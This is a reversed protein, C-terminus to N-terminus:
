NAIQLFTIIQFLLVTIIVCEAIYKQIFSFTKRVFVNKIEACLFDDVIWSQKLRTFNLSSLFATLPVVLGEGIFSIIRYFVSFSETTIYFAPVIIILLCFIIIKERKVTSVNTLASIPVEVYSVASTLAAIILAFYFLTGLLDGYFGGKDFVNQMSDFILQPGNGIFSKNKSASMVVVSMALAFLTDAIVVSVSSKVTNQNDPMMSGYTIMSGVAISLSFFMQDSATAFIKLCHKLSYNDNKFVEKIIDDFNKGFILIVAWTVVALMLLPVAISNFREIGNGVKMRSLLYILVIFVITYFGNFNLLLNIKECQFASIINKCLYKICMGGAACYYTLIILPSIMTLVGIIKIKPANVRYLSIVDTRLYKGLLFELNLLVLGVSFALLLYFILFTGGYEKLKCPFMWVNGFGVAGGISSLLFGKNSTFKNQNM